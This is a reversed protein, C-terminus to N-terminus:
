KYQNYSNYGININGEVQGNKDGPYGSIMAISQEANNGCTFGLYGSNSGINSDLRIVGWDLSARWNLPNYPDDPNNPYEDYFGTITEYEYYPISIAIETASAAGYPTQLAGSTGPYVAVAIPWGGYKVNYLCHAATLATDPSIMTATGYGIILPDLSYLVTIFAIASYPLQTTDAIARDDIPDIVSDVSVGEPMWGPESLIVDDNNSLINGNIRYYYTQNTTLNHAIAAAGTPITTIELTPTILTADDDADITGDIAYLSLMFSLCLWIGLFLCLVKKKM